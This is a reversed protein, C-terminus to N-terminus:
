ARLGRRKQGLRHKMLGNSRDDMLKMEGDGQQWEDEKLAARPCADMM